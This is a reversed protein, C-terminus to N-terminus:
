KAGRHNGMRRSLRERASKRLNIVQQRTVGLREAITLDDLPLSPWLSALEAAPLGIASALDGLTAVGILVFLSIVNSSDPARLNLLLAARQDPRLLQIERWLLEIDQRQELRILPTPARDVLKEAAGIAIENTGRGSLLKAIVENMALVGGSARLLAELSEGLGRNAPRLPTVAGAILECSMGSESDRLAFRPDSACLERLRKKMQAREPNRTRFHDNIANYTLGAVYAAFTGIAGSHADALQRLKMLLRARVTSLVDDVDYPALQGRRSYYGIVELMVPQATQFLCEIACTAEQSSTAELLRHLLPDNEAVFASPAANAVM